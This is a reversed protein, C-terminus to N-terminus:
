QTNCSADIRIIHLEKFGELNEKHRHLEHNDLQIIIIEATTRVITGMKVHGGKVNFSEDSVAMHVHMGGQSLTGSLSIMEYGGELTLTTREYGKRFSVKSLSGVGTAIYGAEINYKRCYQDIAILLDEGANLKLVHEVM